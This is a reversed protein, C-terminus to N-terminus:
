INKNKSNLNFISYIIGFVVALLFIIFPLPLGMILKINGYASFLTFGVLFSLIIIGIIIKEHLNTIQNKLKIIKESDDKKKEELNELIKEAHEPLKNVFEVIDNITEEGKHIFEGIYIRKGFHKKVRKKIEEVFDLTPDLQHITGEMTFFAKAFLVIDIPVKIKYKSTLNIINFLARGPGTEGLLHDSEIVNILEKKAEEKFKNLNIANTTDCFSKIAEYAQEEKGEYIYKLALLVKIREKKTITGIIGFDIFAVKQNKLIIINAPHSDAHFFGDVLIQKFLSNIYNKVFKKRNPYKTKLQELESIPIGKVFDMIIIKNTIYDFYMKPIETNKLSSLNRRLKEANLAEAKFNLERETYRKFEDVIGVPDIGFKNTKKLLKAIHYIIDIDEKMIERITPRQVKVAVTQKNRKLVAKYVQAMSASAIPKKNFKLFIKNLPKKLEKEIIEKAQNYPFPPVADQLEKFEDCFEQPVLDPRLSLLQGLKIFTGGLEEFAHRLQLAMIDNSNPRQFRSKLRKFFPLHLHLGTETALYGFGHKTFVGLIHRLRNLDKFTQLAAM